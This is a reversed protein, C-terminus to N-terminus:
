YYFRAKFSKLTTMRVSKVERTVCNNYDSPAKGRNAALVFGTSIYVLSILLEMNM